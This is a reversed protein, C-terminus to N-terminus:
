LDPRPPVASTDGGRGPRDDDAGIFRRQYWREVDAPGIAGVLAGGSLVLADRGAMWEIVDDLHDTPAVVPTQNLPIMGERVTRLPDRAGVKRASDMSITGVVRGAEVVPFTRDPSERLWRDLADSLSITSPIQDPMPRMAEAATGVSLLDRAKVRQPTARGASIMVFGLYGLFLWLGSGSRFTIVAAALMIAGVVVGGYGAVLVATRRSKTVGWTTALLMRGGDLPFGPLANVLGILLNLAALQRVIERTLGPDMVGALLWFAAALVLTTAPGVFAIVFEAFPGKANSATETAGGWFVLTIASVPLGFGRAAIAHAAEHILVGGFFLGGEFLTLGIARLPSPREISNALSAYVVFAYLAVIYFWSTALYIPIGRITAVKLRNGIPM